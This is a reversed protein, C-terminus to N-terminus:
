APLMPMSSGIAGRSSAQDAAGEVAADGEEAGGPGASLARVLFQRALRQLDRRGPTQGM